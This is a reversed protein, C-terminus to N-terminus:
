FYMHQCFRQSSSQFSQVDVHLSHHTAPCMQPFQYLGRPSMCLPLPAAGKRTPCGSAHARPCGLQQQYITAILITLTNGPLPSFNSLLKTVTLSRLPCKQGQSESENSVDTEEHKFYMGHFPNTYSAKELEFPSHTCFTVGTHLAPEPAGLCSWM